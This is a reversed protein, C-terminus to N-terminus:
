VGEPSEGVTETRERVAEPFSWAGEALPAVTDPLHRDM